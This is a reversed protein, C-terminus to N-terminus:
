GLSHIIERYAPRPFAKMTKCHISARRASSCCSDPRPRRGAGRLRLRHRVRGHDPLVVVSGGMEELWRRVADLRKPSDRIHQIGRETYNVLAVYTSM